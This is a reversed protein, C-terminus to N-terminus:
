MNPRRLMALVPSAVKWLALAKGVLSLGSRGQGRLTAIGLVAGAIALPVKVRDAVMGGLKERWSLGPESPGTLAHYQNSFQGRQQACQALLAERRQALTPKALEARLATIDADSM